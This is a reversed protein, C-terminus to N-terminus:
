AAKRYSAPAPEAAPKTRQSVEHRVAVLALSGAALAMLGLLGVGLLLLDNTFDLVAIAVGSQTVFSWM